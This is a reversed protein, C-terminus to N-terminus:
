NRVGKRRNPTAAVKKHAYPNPADTFPVEFRFWQHEFKFNKTKDSYKYMILKNFTSQKNKSQVNFNFHNKSCLGKTTQRKTSALQEQM